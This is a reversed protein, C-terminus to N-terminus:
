PGCGAVALVLIGLVVALSLGIRWGPVLHFIVDLAVVALIAACVWKVSRLLLRGAQEKQHERDAAALREVIGQAEIM